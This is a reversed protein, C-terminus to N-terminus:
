ALRKATCVKRDTSEHWGHCTRCKYTVLAKDTGLRMPMWSGRRVPQLQFTEDIIKFCQLADRCKLTIPDVEYFPPDTFEYVDGILMAEARQDQKPDRYLLNASELNWKM